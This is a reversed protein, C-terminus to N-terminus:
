LSLYLQTSQTLNLLSHFPTASVGPLVSPDWIPWAEVNRTRHSGQKGTRMYRGGLALGFGDNTLLLNVLGGEKTGHQLGDPWNMALSACFRTNDEYPHVNVISGLYVMLISYLYMSQRKTQSKRLYGIPRIETEGLVVGRRGASPSIWEIWM